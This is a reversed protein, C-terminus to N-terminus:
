FIEKNYEYNQHWIIRMAFVSVIFFNTFFIGGTGLKNQCGLRLCLYKKPRIHLSISLEVLRLYKLPVVPAPAATVCLETEHFSRKRVSSRISGSTLIRLFVYLGIISRCTSSIWARTSRVVPALDGCSIQLLKWIVGHPIGVLCSRVARTVFNRCIACPCGIGVYALSCWNYRTQMCRFDCMRQKFCAYFERNMVSWYLNSAM